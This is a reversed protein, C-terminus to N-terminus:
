VVTLGNLSGSTAITATAALLYGPHLLNLTFTALTIQTGDLWNFLAQNTIIPGNWGDNLEITRYIASRM